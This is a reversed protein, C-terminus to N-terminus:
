LNGVNADAVTDTTAYTDHAEYKFRKRGGNDSVLKGIIRPNVKEDLIDEINYVRQEPDVYYIIGQIDEAVLEVMYQTSDSFAIASAATTNRTKTSRRNGGSGGSGCGVSGSGFNSTSSSGCNSTSGSGVCGSISGSIGVGCVMTNPDTPNHIGCYELGRKKQRTCLKGDVRIGMCLKDRSSELIPKSQLLSTNSESM